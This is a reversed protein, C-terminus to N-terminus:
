WWQVQIVHICQYMVIVTVMSSYMCLSWVYFRGDKMFSYLSVLDFETNLYVHVSYLTYLIKGILTSRYLYSYCHEDNYQKHVIFRLKLSNYFQINKVTVLYNTSANFSSCSLHLKQVMEQELRLSPSLNSSYVFLEAM